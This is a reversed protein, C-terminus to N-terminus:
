KGELYQNIRKLVDEKTGPGRYVNGQLKGADHLAELKARTDPDDVLSMVEKFVLVKM